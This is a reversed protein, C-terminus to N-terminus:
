RGANNKSFSGKRKRKGNKADEKLRKREVKAFFIALNFSEPDYKKM